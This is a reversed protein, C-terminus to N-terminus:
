FRYHRHHHKHTKHKSSVIITEKVVAKRAISASCGNLWLVGLAVCLLIKAYM